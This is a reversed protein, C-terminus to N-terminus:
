EQCVQIQIEAKIKLTFEFRTFTKHFYEAHFRLVEPPLAPMCNNAHKCSTLINAPSILHQTFKNRTLTIAFRMARLLILNSFHAM